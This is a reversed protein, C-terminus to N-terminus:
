QECHVVETVLAQGASRKLVIFSFLILVLLAGIFFWPFWVFTETFVENDLVRLDIDPNLAKRSEKTFTLLMSYLIGIM